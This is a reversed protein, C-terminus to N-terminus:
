FKLRLFFNVDMVEYAADLKSLHLPFEYTLGASHVFGGIKLANDKILATLSKSRWHWGFCRYCACFKGYFNRGDFNAKTKGSAAIIYEILQPFDVQMFNFVDGGKMFFNNPIRVNGEDDTYEKLTQASIPMKTGGAPVIIANAHTGDM